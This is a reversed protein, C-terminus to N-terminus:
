PNLPVKMVRFSFTQRLRLVEDAAEQFRDFFLLARRVDIQTTTILTTVRRM